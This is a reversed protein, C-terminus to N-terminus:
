PALYSQEMFSSKLELVQCDERCLVRKKHEPSHPHPLSQRDKSRIQDPNDKRRAGGPSGEQLHCLQNLVTIFQAKLSHKSNHPVLVGVHDGALFLLKHHSRWLHSFFLTYILGLFVTFFGPDLWFIRLHHSNSALFSRKGVEGFDGLHEVPLGLNPASIM